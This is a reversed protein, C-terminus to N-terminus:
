QNFRHKTKLVIRGKNLDFSQGARLVSMRVGEASLRPSDGVPEPVRSKRPDYVVVSGKGFVEFTDDPYYLIATSEDIGIGPLNNEIVLSVLRNNRRRAVFHQDVICDSLLGLGRETAINDRELVTFNGDGTIMIRSQVAAGASTGGIVGRKEFYLRRIAEETRTGGIRGMLRTQVGGTFFVGGAREIREVVSDADAMAPGEIFLWDVDNAGHKRFMDAADPGSELPVASASPIVLIPREETYEIFKEVAESPKEKGGVIMLIGRETGSRGSHECGAALGLLILLGIM